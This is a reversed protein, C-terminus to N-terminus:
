PAQDMRQEYCDSQITISALKLLNWAMREAEVHSLAIGRKMLYIGQFDKVAQKSLKM